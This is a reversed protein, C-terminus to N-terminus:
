SRFLQAPVKLKGIEEIKLADILFPLTGLNHFDASMKGKPFIECGLDMSVSRLGIERVATRLLIRSLKTNLQSAGITIGYM